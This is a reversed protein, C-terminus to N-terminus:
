KIRYIDWSDITIEYNYNEKIFRIVPILLRADYFPSVEKIMNADKLSPIFENTSSTDIILKPKIKKLDFIFARIDEKKTYGPTELPYLYIYKTATRRGSLFNLGAEAGWFYVYDSRSTNNMIWNILPAKWYIYRFGGINVFYKNDLLIHGNKIYALNYNIRKNIREKIVLPKIDYIRQFVGGTRMFLFAGGAYLIDLLLPSFIFFLGAFIAMGTRVKYKKFLFELSYGCLLSLSPIWQVYYHGEYRGSFNIFYFDSSAWFILMFFILHNDRNRSFLNNKIDRACIFLRLWLGLVAFGILFPWRGLNTQLLYFLADGARCLFLSDFTTKKSFAFNYIFVQSIFDGVANNVSFYVAM